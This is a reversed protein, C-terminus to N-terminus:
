EQKLILAALRELLEDKEAPAATGARFKQLLSISRVKHATIKSQKDEFAITQGPKPTWTITCADSKSVMAIRESKAAISEYIVLAHDCPQTTTNANAIQALLLLHIIM